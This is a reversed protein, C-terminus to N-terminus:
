RIQSAIQGAEQQWGTALTRVLADYGDENQKLNLAFDRQVTQGGHTLTWSGSVVVIGDYRGHFGTVNVSLVDQEDTSAAQSSVLFGPLDRRLYTVLSQQLQQDLPSAWLNNQTLTYQVDNTQYVLGTGALYDAVSVREVWLHRQVTSGLAMSSGAVPTSSLVPLQYYTKHDSSSCASLFLALVVPIWKMM